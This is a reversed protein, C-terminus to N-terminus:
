WATPPPTRSAGTQFVPCTLRQLPRATPPTIRAASMDLVCKPQSLCILDTANRHIRLLQSLALLRMNEYKFFIFEIKFFHRFQLFQLLPQMCVFHILGWIVLSWFRWQINTYDVCCLTLRASSSATCSSLLICMLKQIAPSGRCLPSTSDDSILASARLTHRSITPLQCQDQIHWDREYKNTTDVDRTLCCFITM